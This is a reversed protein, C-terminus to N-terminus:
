AEQLILTFYRINKGALDAIDITVELIYVTANIVRVQDTVAFTVTTGVEGTDQFSKAQGSAWNVNNEVCALTWVRVKGRVKVKRKYAQNEWADWQRNIVQFHESLSKVNLTKGDLTVTM